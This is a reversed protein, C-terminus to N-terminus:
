TVHETQLNLHGRYIIQILLSQVPKHSDPNYGKITRDAAHPAARQPSLLSFPPLSADLPIPVEYSVPLLPESSFAEALRSDVQVGEGGSCSFYKATYM